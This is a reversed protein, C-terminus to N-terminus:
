SFDIAWAFEVKERKPTEAPKRLSFFANRSVTVYSGTGGGGSGGGWWVGEGVWVLGGVCFVRVVWWLHPPCGRVELLM